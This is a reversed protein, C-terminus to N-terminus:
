YEGLFIVGYVSLTLLTDLLIVTFFYSLSSTPSTIRRRRYEAVLIALIFIIIPVAFRLFMGVGDAIDLWASFPVYVLIDPLFLLKSGQFSLFAIILLFISLPQSVNEDNRVLRLVIMIALGVIMWPFAFPFLLIGTVAELGGALILNPMDGMSIRDLNARAEPATTAYFVRNGSSGEQWILHLNKNKDLFILPDGSIETTRTGVTYGQYDGDEYVGILIQIYQDL